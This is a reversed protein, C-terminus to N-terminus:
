RGPANANMCNIMYSLAATDAHIPRTAYATQYVSQAEARCRGFAAREAPSMRSTSISAVTQQFGSQAHATALCAVISLVAYTARKM